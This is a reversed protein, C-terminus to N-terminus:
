SILENNLFKFNEAGVKDEKFYVQVKATSDKIDYFSSKGHSRAAMIRGALAADRGEAFNSRLAKITSTTEFKGGYPYVGDRIINGLKAKKQRVLENEESHEPM